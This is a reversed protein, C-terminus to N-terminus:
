SCEAVFSGNNFLGVVFRFGSKEPLVHFENCAESQSQLKDAYRLAGNITKFKRSMKVNIRKGNVYKIM